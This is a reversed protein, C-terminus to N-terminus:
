GHKVQVITGVFQVLQILPENYLLVHGINHGNPIYILIVLLICIHADHIDGHRYHILLITHM